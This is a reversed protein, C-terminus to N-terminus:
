EVIPDQIWILGKTNLELEKVNDLMGCVTPYTDFIERAEDESDANVLYLGNCLEWSDGTTTTFLFTKM